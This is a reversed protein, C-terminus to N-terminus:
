LIKIEQFSYNESGPILIPVHSIYEQYEPLDGYRKGQEKELRKTTWLMIWVIAVLGLLSIVLRLVSSYVEIGTMWAGIWFM